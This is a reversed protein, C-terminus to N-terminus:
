GDSFEKGYQEYVGRIFARQLEGYEYANIMAQLDLEEGRQYARGAVVGERMAILQEVVFEPQGRFGYQRKCHAIISKGSSHKMGALQLKAAEIQACLSVYQVSKKGVFMMSM